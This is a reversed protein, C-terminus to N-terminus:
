RLGSKESRELVMGREVVEGREGGEEEKWEIKWERDRSRVEIM